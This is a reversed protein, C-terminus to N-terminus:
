ELVVDISCVTDNEDIGIRLYYDDRKKGNDCYYWLETTGDDSTNKENPEGFTELVDSKTSGETVGNVSLNKGTSHLSKIEQKGYESKSEERDCVFQVVIETIPPEISKYIIDGGIMGDPREYYGYVSYGNGLQEVTFPLTVPRDDIKITLQYVKSEGCATLTFLMVIAMVACFTRKLTM